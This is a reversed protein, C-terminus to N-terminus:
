CKGLAIAKCVKLTLRFGLLLEAFSELESQVSCSAKRKLIDCLHLGEPNFGLFLM